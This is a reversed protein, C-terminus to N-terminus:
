PNQLINEYIIGLVHTSPWQKQLANDYGEGRPLLLYLTWAETFAHVHINFNKHNGM